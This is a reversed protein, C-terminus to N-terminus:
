LPLRGDRRSSAAEAPFAEPPSRGASAHVEPRKTYDCAVKTTARFEGQIANFEDVALANGATKPEKTTAELFVHTTPALRADFGVVSV